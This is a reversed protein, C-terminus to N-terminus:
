ERFYDPTMVGPTSTALFKADVTGHNDFGHVAGRRICVAEGPGIDLPRGDVTWTTTGELGYITEEFADHSHPVPMKSDAPVLNPRSTVGGSASETAGGSWSGGRRSSLRPAPLAM